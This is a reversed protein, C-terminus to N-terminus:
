YVMKRKSRILKFIYATMLANAICQLILSLIALNINIKDDYHFDNSAIIAVASANLFTASLALGITMWSIWINNNMYYTELLTFVLTLIHFTLIVATINKVYNDPLDADDHLRKFRNAFIGLLAVWLGLGIVIFAIKENRTIGVDSMEKLLKMKDVYKKM